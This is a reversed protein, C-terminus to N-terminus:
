VDFRTVDSNDCLGAYNLSRQICKSGPENTRIYIQDGVVNGKAYNCTLTIASMPVFFGSCGIRSSKANVIQTFYGIKTALEDVPFKRLYVGKSYKINSYWERIASEFAVM